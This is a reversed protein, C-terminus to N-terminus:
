LLNDLVYPVAFEWLFRRVYLGPYNNNTKEFRNERTSFHLFGAPIFATFLYPLPCELFVMKVFCVSFHQFFKNTM